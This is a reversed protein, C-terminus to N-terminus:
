GKIAYPEGTRTEFANSGYPVIVKVGMGEARGLWYNVGCKEWLSDTFDVDGLFFKFCLEIEDFGEYLAHAIMYDLTSCYYERRFYKTILKYPYKTSEKIEPIDHLLIIEFGYKDSYENIENWNFFPKYKVEVQKHMIYLRDIQGDFFKYVNNFVWLEGDYQKRKIGDIIVKM